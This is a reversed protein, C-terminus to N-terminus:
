SSSSSVLLSVYAAPRHTRSRHSTSLHSSARFIHGRQHMKFFGGPRRRCRQHGGSGHYPSTTRTVAAAEKPRARWLCPWCCSGPSATLRPPPPLPRLRRLRRRRKLAGVVAVGKCRRHRRRSCCSTAPQPRPSPLWPWPLRPLSEEGQFRDFVPGGDYDGGGGGREVAVLSLAGDGGIGGDEDGGCGGSTQPWPWPQPPRSCCCCCCHM